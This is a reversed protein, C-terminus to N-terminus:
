IKVGSHLRTKAPMKEPEIADVELGLMTLEDALEATSIDFDLLEKLWNVSFKM